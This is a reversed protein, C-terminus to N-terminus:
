RDLDYLQRYYKRMSAMDGLIRADEAKIVLAKLLNSNDAVDAALKLRTANYEDVQCVYVMIVMLMLCVYVMIVRLMLCVYVMIVSLMLCVYVMIARLMLCVYVMIARLMLCVYV